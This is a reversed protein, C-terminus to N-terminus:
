SQYPDLLNINRKNAEREILSVIREHERQALNGAKVDAISDATLEDLQEVFDIPLVSGQDFEAFMERVARALNKELKKEDQM